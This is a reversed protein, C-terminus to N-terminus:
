GPAVSRADPKPRHLSCAAGDWRELDPHHRSVRRRRSITGVGRCHSYRRGVCLRHRRRHVLRTSGFGRAEPFTEIREVLRRGTERFARGLEATHRAEDGLDAGASFAKAGAGTLVVCRTEARAELADFAAALEAMVEESVLNLPPRNLTVTSVGHDHTVLLTQYTM